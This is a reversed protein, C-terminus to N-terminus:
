DGDTLSLFQYPEGDAAIRIIANRRVALKGPGAIEAEISIVPPTADYVDDKAGPQGSLTLAQRVVADAQTADPDGPQYLSMHPAARALLAPPMGVVDALAGLNVFARGPPGFPLGAQKYTELAAQEAQRSVAQSRWQIVAGALQFAQSSTAGCAQFLGALLASSALNPNIKDDLLRIRVDVPGSASNLRHVNGDPPWHDAGSSFLHLLAENVAGDASARAQAGARINGALVVATRGSALIQATLLSILVLSWLVILLAFGREGAKAASCVPMM